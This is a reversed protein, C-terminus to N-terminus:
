GALAGRLQAVRPDGTAELRELPEAAPRRAEGAAWLELARWEDFELLGAWVSRLGLVLRRGRRRAVSAADARLAMLTAPLRGTTVVAKPLYAAAGAALAAESAAAEPSATLLVCDVQPDLAAIRRTAAVGDLRDMVVDMLVVDPRRERVLEVAELGDHAVGVVEVGDADLARALVARAVPDDDTILVRLAM